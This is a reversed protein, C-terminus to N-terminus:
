GRWYHRGVDRHVLNFFIMNDDWYSLIDEELKPINIDAKVEEFRKM